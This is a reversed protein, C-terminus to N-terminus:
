FKIELNLSTGDMIFKTDNFNPPGFQVYGNSVGVDELPMGNTAFDLKNNENIDHYCVISYVNNPVNKFTVETKGNKISGIERLIPNVLFDKEVYLAFRIIGKSNPIKLISVTIDNGNQRISNNEQASLSSGVLFLVITIIIKTM